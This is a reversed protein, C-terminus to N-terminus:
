HIGLLCFDIGQRLLRNLQKTNMMKLYFHNEEQLNIIVIFDNTSLRMQKSRIYKTNERRRSIHFLSKIKQNNTQM